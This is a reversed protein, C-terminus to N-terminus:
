LLHYVVFLVFMTRINNGFVVATYNTWEMNKQAEISTINNDKNKIDKKKANDVPIITRTVRLNEELILPIIVILQFLM